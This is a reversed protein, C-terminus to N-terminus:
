RLVLFHAMLVDCSYDQLQSLKAGAGHFASIVVAAARLAARWKFHFPGDARARSSLSAPLADGEEDAARMLQELFLPNNESRESVSERLASPASFFGGALALADKAGLPGLDITLLPSRAGSARWAATRASRRLPALHARSSGSAGAAGTLPCHAGADGMDAWHLDEVILLISFRRMVGLLRVVAASGGSGPGVHDMAQSRAGGGQSRCASSVACSHSPKRSSPIARLCGASRCRAPRRRGSGPPLHMLSMVIEGAVQAKCASTWCSGPIVPTFSAALARERVRRRAAIGIGADGRVFVTGGTGGAACSALTAAAAGLEAARGSSRTRGLTIQRTSSGEDFRWATLPADIGERDCGRIPTCRALHQVAAGRRGARKGTGALKLLYAGRSQRTAADYTTGRAALAARWSRAPHSGPHASALTEGKAGGVSPQM